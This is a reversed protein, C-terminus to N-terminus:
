MVVWRFIHRHTLKDREKYIEKTEKKYKDAWGNEMGERKKIIEKKRDNIEENRQGNTEKL